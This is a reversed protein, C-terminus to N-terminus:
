ARGDLSRAVRVAVDAARREAVAAARGVRLLAVWEAPRLVVPALAGARPGRDGERVLTAAVGLPADPTDLIGRVVVLPVGQAACRSAWGAAETEVALVGGVLLAAREEASDVPSDASAVLGRVAGPVEPALVDLPVAGRGLHLGSAVVVDGAGAAGGTGGAVGCVVVARVQPVWEDAATRAAAQGMGTVVVLVGPATGLARRV